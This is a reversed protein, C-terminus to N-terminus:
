DRNRTGREIVYVAYTYQQAWTFFITGLLTYRQLNNVTSVHLLSRNKLKYAIILTTYCITYTISQRM